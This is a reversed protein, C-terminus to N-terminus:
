IYISLRANPPTALATGTLVKEGDKARAILQYHKAPQLGQITFYGEPGAAVEIKAPTASQPVSLDVVQIFAGPQRRNFRDLVQGALIGSISSSSAPVAATGSDTQSSPNTGLFPRQQGSDPAASRKGFLGCGALGVCISLLGVRVATQVAHGES